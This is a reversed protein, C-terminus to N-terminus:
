EIESVLRKALKIRNSIEDTGSVTKKCDASLSLTIRDNEVKSIAGVPTSCDANLSHLVQRETEFSLMTNKDSIEALMKSVESNKRSEIAVIGQCPAPLFEDTDFPTVTYGEGNCLDLRELGAKALVLADYEGNLLKKLRTDVNGRIDKFKANPYIKEAFLKRRLSGTGIVFGDKTEFNNRTVFVDVYSGRPLVASIELGDAIKTPLDKASHVAVDTEGSLLSMELEKIFVGKGGLAVLPKDLTKDGTTSIYVAEIKVNPFRNKLTKILMETQALALRSKRTGIKITM